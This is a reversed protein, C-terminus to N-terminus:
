AASICTPGPELMLKDFHKSGAYLINKSYKCILNRENTVYM